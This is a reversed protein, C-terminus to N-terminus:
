RRREHVLAPARQHGAVSYKQGVVVAARQIRDRHRGAPGARRRDAQGDGMGPLPPRFRRSRHRPAAAQRRSPDAATAAPTLRHGDPRALDHRHAPSAQCPLTVIVLIGGDQGTKTESALSVNYPDPEDHDAEFNGIPSASTDTSGSRNSTIKFGEATLKERLSRLVLLHLRVAPPRVRRGLSSGLVQM